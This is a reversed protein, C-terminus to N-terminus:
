KKTFEVEILFRVEDGIVPAYTTLGFDSRKIMTTASFGVRTDGMLGKGSGNFDVDLTVPKTVGLLSLEGEVKGHGGAEPRVAKSVFTIAPYQSANLWKQGQLETTLAPLQTDVSGPAVTVKVSASEPHAPDYTLNGSLGNFRLTFNSFGIHSVKATLSSHVPDLAYDGAAMQAPDKSAVGPAASAASAVFLVCAVAAIQVKLKM